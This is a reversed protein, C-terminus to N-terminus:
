DDNLRSLIEHSRISSVSAAMARELDDDDVEIGDGDLMSEGGEGAGMGASLRDDGAAGDCNWTNDAFQENMSILEKSPTQAYSMLAEEDDKMSRTVIPQESPAVATPANGTREMWEMIMKKKESDLEHRTKDRPSPATAGKLPEGLEMTSM